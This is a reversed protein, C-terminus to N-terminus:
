NKSLPHYDSCDFAQETLVCSPRVTCGLYHNDTFFHCNRCPLRHFCNLMVNKARVVKWIKALTLISIVLIMTFGFPILSLGDGSNIVREQNTQVPKTAVPNVAPLRVELDYKKM